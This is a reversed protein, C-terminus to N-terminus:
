TQFISAFINSDFPWFAFIFVDLIYRIKRINNTDKLFGYRLVCICYHVCDFGLLDYRCWISEFNIVVLTTSMVGLM